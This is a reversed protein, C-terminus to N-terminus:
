AEPRKTKFKRAILGPARPLMGFFLRAHMASIRVNDRLGQFHSVGGAPYVVRTPRWVMPVGRWYLVGARRYRFGHSSGSRPTGAARPDAGAPLGSFRVDRGSHGHVAHQDVGMPADALARVAPQAPRRRRLGARRGGPRRPYARSARAMEPIDDLAHQGDADIQLAHTYGQSAAHRLGDQVARGKGGNHARRVLTAKGSAALADLRAACAPASGDDVLICPIGHARVRDVVSGVTDGHNYVPIVACLRHASM